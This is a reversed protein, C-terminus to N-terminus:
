CVLVSLNFNRLDFNTLPKRLPNDDIYLRNPGIDPAIIGGALGSMEKGTLETLEEQIEQNSNVLNDVKIM